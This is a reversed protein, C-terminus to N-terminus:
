GDPLFRQKTCSGPLKGGALGCLESVAGDCSVEGSALGSGDGEFAERRDDEDGCFRDGGPM